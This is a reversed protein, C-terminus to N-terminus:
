VSKQALYLLGTIPKGGDMRIVAEKKDLTTLAVRDLLAEVYDARHAHRMSELLQWPADGEAKEVSFLFLGLPHLADTVLGFVPELNPLYMFVDAAMILDMPETTRLFATIDAKFLTHYLSKARASELMAASLDVGTLWSVKSVVEAGMLGTGCGLDLASQFFTGGCNAELMTALLKPVKYALRDVLAKDFREAYEDFLAETYALPSARSVTGDLFSIKLAAGFRDDRAFKLTERYAALAHPVDGLKEHYSGLRFWGAAWQPSLKLAQVILDAAARYDNDDALAQAYDARKDAVLNGSSQTTHNM